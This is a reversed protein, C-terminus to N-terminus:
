LMELEKRECVVTMRKMELELEKNKM